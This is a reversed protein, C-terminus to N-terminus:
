WLMWSSFLCMTTLVKLFHSTVKNGFQRVRLHLRLYLEFGLCETFKLYLSIARMVTVHSMQGM